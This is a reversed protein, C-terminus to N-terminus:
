VTSLEGPFFCFYSLIYITPDLMTGDRDGDGYGRGESGKASTDSSLVLPMVTRVLASYSYLLALAQNCHRLGRGWKLSEEQIQSVM